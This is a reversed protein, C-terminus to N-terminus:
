KSSGKLGFILNDRIGSITLGANEGKEYIRCYYYFEKNQGLSKFTQPARGTELDTVTRIEFILRDATFKGKGTEKVTYFKASSADQSTVVTINKLISKDIKYYYGNVSNEFYYGSNKLRNGNVSVYHLLIIAKDGQATISKSAPLFYDTPVDIIGDSDIDDCVATKIRTTLSAFSKKGIKMSVLSNSKKDWLIMDTLMKGDSTYGDIYMRAGSKDTEFDFSIKSVIRLASDLFITGIVDSKLSTFRILDAEYGYDEETDNSNLVLLECQKDRDADLVCYRSYDCEYRITLAPHERDMSNVSYVFLHQVIESSYSSLGVIIDSVGNGNIDAFDIQIVDSYPSSVSALRKWSSEEQKFICMNVSDPEKIDSYLVVAEKKEDADIDYYVFASTHEGKTPTKLLYTKGIEAELAAQVSGGEDSYEPPRILSEIPKIELSYVIFLGACLLCIILIASAFRKM